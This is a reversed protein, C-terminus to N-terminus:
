PRTAEGLELRAQWFRIVDGNGLVTKKEPGIEFGLKRYFAFSPRSVSLGLTPIGRERAERMLADMLRRGLGAGQHSPDVFVGLIETGVLAATAVPRGDREIMLVTGARVREAIRGADHYDRFFAIAAPGYHGAYSEGITRHILDALPPVDAATARRLDYGARRKM